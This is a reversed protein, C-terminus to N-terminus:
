PRDSRSLYLLAAVPFSVVVAVTALVPSLLFAAVGAAGLAVKTSTAM